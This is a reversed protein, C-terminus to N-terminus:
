SLQTLIALLMCSLFVFTKKSTNNIIAMILPSAVSQLVVPLPSDSYRLTHQTLLLKPCDTVTLSFPIVRYMRQGLTDGFDQGDLMYVLLLPEIKSQLLRCLAPLLVLPTYEILGSPPVANLTLKLKVQAEDHLIYM